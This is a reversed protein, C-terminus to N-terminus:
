SVFEFLYSAVTPVSREYRLDVIRSLRLRWNVFEQKKDQEAVVRAEPVKFLGSYHNGFRAAAPRIIFLRAWCQEGCTKFYSRNVSAVPSSRLAKPSYGKDSLHTM